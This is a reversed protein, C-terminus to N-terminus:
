DTTHTAPIRAELDAFRKLLYTVPYALAYVALVLMIPDMPQRYRLSTHTIYFVLPFFLMVSALPLATENREHHALLLGVLSLLAFACNGLIGLKTQLSIRNWIDSPWVWMAIWHDLFRHFTFRMADAPHTRIFLLAEHQKEQMYPIETM